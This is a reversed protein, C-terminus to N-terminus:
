DPDAALLDPLSVFEQLAALASVPEAPMAKVLAADTLGYIAGTDILRRITRERRTTKSRRSASM